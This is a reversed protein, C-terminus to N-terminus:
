RRMGDAGIIRPTLEIDLSRREGARDFGILFRSYFERDEALGGLSITEGDRVIVETSLASFRTHHPQGDVQGRLEPTVRVLVTRRDPLITPTVVLFAGVEEWHLQSTIYGGRWGYEMIWDVHPVREGVRLMAERGSASVIFQTTDARTETTQHRLEPRLVVAGNVGGPRFIVEGEGRLAAGSERTDGRDRFRVDIRVNETMRDAADAVCVAFLFLAMGLTRVLM